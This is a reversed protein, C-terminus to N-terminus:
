IFRLLVMTKREVQRIFTRIDLTPILLSPFNQSQNLELFGDTALRYRKRELKPPSSPYTGTNDDEELCRAPTMALQNKPQTISEKNM